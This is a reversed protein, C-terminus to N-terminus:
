RKFAPLSGADTAAWRVGWPPQTSNWGEVWGWGPGPSGVARVRGRSLGSAQNLSVVAASFSMSRSLSASM